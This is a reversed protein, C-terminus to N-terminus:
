YFSYSKCTALYTYKCIPPFISTRLTLRLLDGLLTSDTKLKVVLSVLIQLVSLYVEGTQLYVYRDVISAGVRGPFVLDPFHMTCGWGIRCWRHVRSICTNPLIRSVCTAFTDIKRTYRAFRVMQGPFHLYFRPGSAAQM